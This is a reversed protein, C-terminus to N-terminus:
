SGVNVFLRYHNLGNYVAFILIASGARRFVYDELESKTQTM